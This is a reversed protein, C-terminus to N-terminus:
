QGTGGSNQQPISGYYIRKYSLVLPNSKQVKVIPVNTPAGLNVIYGPYFPPAQHQDYRPDWTGTYSYGHMTGNYVGFNDYVSSQMGGVVTLRGLNGASAWNDLPSRIRGGIPSGNPGQIENGSADKMTFAAMSAHVTLNDPASGDIPIEINGGSAFLGLVNAAKANIANGASDVVPTEYTLDGTVTLNGGVAPSGPAETQYAAATVTLSFESDIAPLPQGDDGRGPGHISKVNGRVYLSAAPRVNTVSRDMPIGTLTMTGNGADITTTGADIDISITTTQKGQTIRIIQRNGTTDATLVVQDADGMVYIGSGTFGQGDTPIYVGPALDPTISTPDKPTGLPTNLASAARLSQDLEGATPPSANLSSGGDLVARAQNFANTPPPIKPVGREFGSEFNPAVLVGEIVESNSDVPPPIHNAGYRYYAAAQDSQTVLGKFVPADLGNAGTWFGLRENTHVRGSFSDGPGLGQFTFGKSVDYPDFHDTFLAFEAFSGVRLGGSSMSSLIDFDIVGEESLTVTGNLGALGQGISDLRYSVSYPEIQGASPDEPNVLTIRNGAHAPTGDGAPYPVTMGTITLKTKYASNNPFYETTSLMQQANITFNQQNLTPQGPTVKPPNPLSATLFQDSHLLRHLNHIGAEAAYFGKTSNTFNSTISNDSLATFTVALGLMLMLSMILMVSVLAMGSQDGNPRATTPLLRSACNSRTNM